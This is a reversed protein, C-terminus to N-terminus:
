QHEIFFTFQEQAEQPNTEMKAEVLPAPMLYGGIVSQDPDIDTVKLALHVFDTMRLEFRATQPEVFKGIQTLTGAGFLAHTEPMIKAQDLPAQVCQAWGNLEDDAGAV